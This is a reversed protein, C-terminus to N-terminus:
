QDRLPVAWWCVPGSESDHISLIFASSAPAIPVWASCDGLDDYDSLPDPAAEEFMEIVVVRVGVSAGWEDLRQLSVFEGFDPLDSHSWLGLQDRVVEQKQITMVDGRKIKVVVYM